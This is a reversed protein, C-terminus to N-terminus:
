SRYFRYTRTSTAKRSDYYTNQQNLEMDSEQSM